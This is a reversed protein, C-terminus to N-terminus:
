RVQYPPNPYSPSFSQMELIEAGLDMQTAVEFVATRVDAALKEPTMQVRANILVTACTTEEMPKGGPSPETNSQTINAWITQDQSSLALKLHGIEAKDALLADCIRRILQNLLARPEFPRRGTIKVATNLWGLVAEARAYRDYDIQTLTKGAGSEGSELLELWAEIGQGNRASIAMVEKNPYREKLSDMLRRCESESITDAKNLVIIDAEEIQKGFLYSVEEPFLSPIEALLLERVRQPDVMTTFPAFVFANGYSNKIPTAVTAVFDTCSGVPEGLLYDPGHVLLNDIRDILDDFRCCFCGSVVEEVPVNLEGLMQRVILTDALNGSQDNTIIGLKKGHRIIMKALTGLATTKGAGLFGGVFILKVPATVVSLPKPM